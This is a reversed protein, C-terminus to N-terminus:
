NKCLFILHFFVKKTSATWAMWAIGFCMQTCCSFTNRFGHNEWKLLRLNRPKRSYYVVLKMYPSVSIKEMMNHCIKEFKVTPLKYKRILFDFNINTKLPLFKVKMNFTKHFWIIKSISKWAPFWILTRKYVATYFSQLLNERFAATIM